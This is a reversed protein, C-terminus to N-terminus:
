TCAFLPAAREPVTVTAPRENVTSSGLADTDPNLLAPEIAWNAEAPYQFVVIVSILVPVAAACAGNFKKSSLPFGNISGSVNGCDEEGEPGSRADVSSRVTLGPAASTM